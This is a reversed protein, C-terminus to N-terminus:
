QEEKEKNKLLKGNIKRFKLPTIGTKKTFFKNFYFEDSFGLKDSIEKLSLETSTILEKAFNCKQDTIYSFVSMGKHNFFIRNLQKASLHVYNAVDETKLKIFINDKIFKKALLYRSDTDNDDAINAIYHETNSRIAYYLSCVISFIDNGIILPAIPRSQILQTRISHFSIIMEESIIGCLVSSHSFNEFMIQSLPQEPTSTIEFSLSFKAFDDSCRIQKHKINAPIMLFQGESTELTEGEIEYTMNGCLIFHVEHFTHTHEKFYLTTTDYLCDHFQFWYVRINIPMEIQPIRIKNIDTLKDTFFHERSLDM